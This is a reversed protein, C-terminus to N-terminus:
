QATAGEHPTAPSAFASPGSTHLLPPQLSSLSGSAMDQMVYALTVIAPRMAKWEDDRATEALQLLIAILSSLESTFHDAAVAGHNPDIM